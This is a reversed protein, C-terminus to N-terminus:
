WSRDVGREKRTFGTTDPLGLDLIVLDPKRETISKRMAEGSAALRVDYGEFTLYRELITRIHRDDDVILILQNSKEVLHSKRLSRSEVVSHIISDADIDVIFCLDQFDHSM